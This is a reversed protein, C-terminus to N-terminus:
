RWNDSNIVALAAIHEIMKWIEYLKQGCSKYDIYCIYWFMLWVKQKIICVLFRWQLFKNKMSFRKCDM